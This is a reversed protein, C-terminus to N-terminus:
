EHTTRISLQIFKCDEIELEIQALALHYQRFGKGKIPNKLNVNEDNAKLLNNNEDFMLIKFHQNPHININPTLAEM